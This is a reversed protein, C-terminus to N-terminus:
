LHSHGTDACGARLETAPAAKVEHDKSALHDWYRSWVKTEFTAGYYATFNTM